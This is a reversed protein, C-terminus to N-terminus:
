WLQSGEQPPLSSFGNQAGTGFGAQNGFGNQSGFGGQGGFGFDSSGYSENEQPAPGYSSYSDRSLREQRPERGESNPNLPLQGPGYYDNQPRDIGMGQNFNVGPGAYNQEFSSINPRFGNPSGYNRNINM